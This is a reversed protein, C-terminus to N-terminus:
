CAPALLRCCRKGNAQMGGRGWRCAPRTAFAASSGTCTLRCGCSSPCLWWALAWCFSPQLPPAPLASSKSRCHECFVQLCHWPCGRRRHRARARLRGALPVAAGHAVGPRQLLAAGAVLGYANSFAICFGLINAPALRGAALLLVLGATAVGLLVGYYM